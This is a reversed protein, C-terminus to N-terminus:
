RPASATQVPLKGQLFLDTQDQFSPGLPEKAPKLPLKEKQVVIPAPNCCSSLLLSALLLASTKNM